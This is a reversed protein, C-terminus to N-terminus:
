KLTEANNLILTSYLFLVDAGEFDIMQCVQKSAIYRIDVLTVKEYGEALLPAISSGFSDRFMILEKGNDCAPNEITVLSLPGSVFIEYADKGYAKEMDYVHIEKNNQYDFVKYGDIVDNTYYQITDAPLNTSLQGYYAGYFPVDLLNTKYSKSISTGMGEALREAVDVIRGQNWHGDTTYYDDLELLDSIQIYNFGTETRMKEYFAEYDMALYGNEEGLFANKDPIIALYINNDPAFEAQIQKFIGAAREMGAEDMPYQMSGIHGDALYLGNQDKTTSTKQYLAMFGDRMPFQDLAYEEFESMFKGSFVTKMTLEPMQALYRRERDSFEQNPKIWCLLAMGFFLVAMFLVTWKQKKM